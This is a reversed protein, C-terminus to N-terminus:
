SLTISIKETLDSLSVCHNRKLHVLLFKESHLMSSLLHLKIKYDIPSYKNKTLDKGEKIIEFHSARAGIKLKEICDTVARTSIEDPWDDLVTDLM